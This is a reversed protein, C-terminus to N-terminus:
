EKVWVEADALNSFVKFTQPLDEGIQAFSEAMSSQMESAVVIATKNIKADSPYNEKIIDRLKHLDHASLKEPGKRFVWIRNKVPIRDAYFLRAVGRQIEWFDTGEKPEVLVYHEKITIQPSM